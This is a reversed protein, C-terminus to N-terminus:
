INHKKECNERLVIAFALSAVSIRHPVAFAVREICKTLPTLLPSFVWCIYM